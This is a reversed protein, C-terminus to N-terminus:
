RNKINHHLYLLEYISPKIDAIDWVAYHTNRNKGLKLKGKFFLILTTPVDTIIHKFSAKEWILTSASSGTYLLDYLSMLFPSGSKEAISHWKWTRPNVELLKYKKDRMDFKFEVECIGIYGIKDLLTRAISILEENDVTEAFTTANGFDIPHQRKRRAVMQVIPQSVNYTFCASFQNESSGPIIDQIIIEDKPIIDLAIKYNQILENKNQCFFVKKHTEKYFQQVVAPKVICPFVYANRKVDDLSQPFWTKPIDIDLAEATKYTLTKNFFVEVKEWDDTSVKFYQELQAKNQSVTRVQLDSTPMILWHLYKGSKGMALLSELLEGEPYPVFETCFKSHRAINRKESDLVVCPIGKKGYIRVIGLAQVHGGIVIIGYQREM